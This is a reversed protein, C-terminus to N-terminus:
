NLESKPVPKSEVKCLDLVEPQTLEGHDSVFRALSAILSLVVSSHLNSPIM